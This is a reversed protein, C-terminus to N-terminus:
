QRNKRPRNQYGTEITKGVCGDSKKVQEKLVQYIKAITPKDEETLIIIEGGHRIFFWTAKFIVSIQHITVIGMVFPALIIRKIIKLLQKM